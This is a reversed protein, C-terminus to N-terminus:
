HPLAFELSVSQTSKAGATEYRWKKVADVAATVLLQHGSLVKVDAVSGDPDITVDMKVAGEVKMKVAIAPYVPPTVKVAKRTDAHLLSAVVLYFALLPFLVYRSKKMTIQFGGYGVVVTGHSIGDGAKDAGPTIVKSLFYAL